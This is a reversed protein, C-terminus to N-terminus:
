RQFNDIQEFRVDILRKLMKIDYDTYILNNKPAKWKYIDTHCGALLRRKRKYGGVSKQMAKKCEKKRWLCRLRM